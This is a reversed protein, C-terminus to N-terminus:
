LNSVDRTEKKSPVFFRLSAEFQFNMIIKCVDAFKNVFAFLNLSIVSIGKSSVHILTHKM